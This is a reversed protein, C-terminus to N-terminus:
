WGGATGGVPVSAGGGYMPQTSENSSSREPSMSRPIGTLNLGFLLPPPSAVFPSPLTWGVNKRVISKLPRFLPFRQWHSLDATETAGWQPFFLLLPPCSPFSSADARCSWPHRYTAAPMFSRSQGQQHPVWPSTRHDRGRLLHHPQPIVLASSFALLDAVPRRPSPPDLSPAPVCV